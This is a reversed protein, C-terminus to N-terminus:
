ICMTGSGDLGQDESGKHLIEDMSNLTGKKLSLFGALEILYVWAVLLSSNNALNRVALEFLYGYSFFFFGFWVIEKLNLKHVM